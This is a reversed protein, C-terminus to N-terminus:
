RPFSADTRCDIPASSNRIRAPPGTREPVRGVAGHAGAAARVPRDGPVGGRHREHGHAGAGVRVGGAPRRLVGGGLGPLEFPVRPSDGRHRISEGALPDPSGSKRALRSDDWSSAAGAASAAALPVGVGAARLSVGVTKRVSIRMSPSAPGSPLIWHRLRPWLSSSAVPLRNGDPPQEPDLQRHPGDM